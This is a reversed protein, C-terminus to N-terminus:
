LCSIAMQFQGTKLQSKRQQSAQIGAKLGTPRQYSDLDNVYNKRLPDKPDSVISKANDYDKQKTKLTAAM